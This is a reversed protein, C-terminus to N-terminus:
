TGGRLEMAAHLPKGAQEHCESCPEGSSYRQGSVSQKLTITPTPGTPQSFTEVAAFPVQMSIPNGVDLMPIQSYYMGFAARIVTRQGLKYALGLRPAFNNTDQGLYDWINSPLGVDSALVVPFSSKLLPITSAPYSKAFVVVKNIGPVFMSVAGYANPRHWQLEYRLGYNITLNRTAKWDDQAYLQYRNQNYKVAIASPLPLQTTTPYGLLFDAYATGSYQGNFSYSGRQPPQAAYNWHNGHQYEFGAKLTHSGHTKTINHYFSITQDLDRSGQEAVGTINTISIQPAGPINQPGLGPIIGATDLNQNQPIRFIRVHLYALRTEAILTPSYIHNWSISQNYNHEGIGAMGGFRSTAGISPNPGLLGAMFSGSLQDKESLNHDLRFSYRDVNERLPVNEVLNVGIGPRSPLPYLANQLNVAVPNLRQPTIVNNNFPLGTFPDKIAALGSFDGARMGVTPVQSSVTSAQRRRFGEYNFFFFSRNKGNYIKPIWIPGSFNGGFENRNYQPNPLGTAFFNKAALIRNRNYELATGHFDNTGGKTVLIVQAPKGFEAAAGSTIVKFERIGDLPPFEGFGRDLYTTTNTAGDISFDIGGYPSAGSIAPTVGFAPIGDQSGANQIGPALALLGTINLRGNLPTNEITASNVVSGVSSDETQIIPATATITVHETAAGVELTVDVNAHQNVELQIDDREYSKFGAQTVTLKYRGPRLLPISYDGNGSTHAKRSINTEPQVVTVTADSMVAGTADRVVGSLSATVEQANLFISCAAMVMFAQVFRIISHM